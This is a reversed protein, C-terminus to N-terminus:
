SLDLGAKKLATLLDKGDEQMEVNDLIEQEAESMKSFAEDRKDEPIFEMVIQQLASLKANQIVQYQQLADISLGKSDKIFYKSKLDIAKMLTGTDVYDTANLTRVGKDIISDIVQESSFFENKAELKPRKSVGDNPIIDSVNNKDIDKDVFGTVTKLKTVNSKKRKDLLEEIPVGTKYSETIKSKLNSISSKSLEYGKTQLYRIITDYSENDQILTVVKSYILKNNYLGKLTLKTKNAM